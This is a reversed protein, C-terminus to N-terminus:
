KGVIIKNKTIYYAIYSLIISIILPIVFDTFSIHKKEKEKLTLVEKNKENNSIHFARKESFLIPTHTIIWKKDKQSYFLNIYFPSYNEKLKSIINNVWKEKNTNTPLLIIGKKINEYLFKELESLLKQYTEKDIIKERIGKTVHITEFNDNAIKKILNDYKESANINSVITIKLCKTFNANKVLSLNIFIGNKGLHKSIEKTYSELKESLFTKNCALIDMYYQKYKDVTVSIVPIKTNNILKSRLVITFKFSALLVEKVINEKNISINSNNLLIIIFTNQDPESIIRNHIQLLLVALLLFSILTKRGM